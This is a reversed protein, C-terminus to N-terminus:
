HIIKKNFYGLDEIIYEATDPMVFKEALFTLAKHLTEKNDTLNKFITKERDENNIEKTIEIGYKENLTEYYKVKQETTDNKMVTSAYLKRM